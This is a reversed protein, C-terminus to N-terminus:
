QHHHDARQGQQVESCELDLQIYHAQLAELGNLDRM